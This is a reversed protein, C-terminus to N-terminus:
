PWVPIYKKGEVSVHINYVNYTNLKSQSVFNWVQSEIVEYAWVHTCYRLTKLEKCIFFLDCLDNKLIYEIKAFKYNKDILIIMNPKYFTGNVKVWSISECNNFSDSSLINKFDTYFEVDTLNRYLTVGCQLPKEFGKCLIFRYNLQLQHKLALTYAPNKRSTVSKAVEKLVKHKAEFRICSMQKLPGFEQMIHPYHLLFHHKPKLTDNFLKIYLKHHKSTLAKLLNINKVTVEQAMIITIMKRLTIYLQWTKNKKPVLDGIILGLNQWFCAMEAASYIIYKKNIADVNILPLVNISPNSGYDFSRIRNKNLTELSFLNEKNILTYLLHGLDYRCVGEFLDHMVDISINRIFHFNEISHFICEEIIGHKKDKVDQAYNIVSRLLNADESIQTQRTTTDTLCIRCSYNSNFSTTLGFIAHLGANDGLIHSLVFNIKRKLNGINIIIGDTQLTKIQNILTTFIQKNGFQKYDVVNHLQIVFINEFISAYKEDIGGITCYVVGLKHVGQHSGLPILKLNM